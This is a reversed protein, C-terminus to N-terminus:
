GAEDSPGGLADLLVFGQATRESDATLNKIARWARRWDRTPSTRPVIAIEDPGTTSSSASATM